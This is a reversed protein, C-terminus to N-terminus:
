PKKKYINKNKLNSASTASALRNGFILMLKDFEAMQLHVEEVMKDAEDFFDIIEKPISVTYSNGVLRLKVKFPKSRLQMFARYKEADLPHYERRECKSCVAARLTIGSRAVEEKHMRSGCEKCIIINDFLDPM